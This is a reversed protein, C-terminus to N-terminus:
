ILGSPFVFTIVCLVCLVVFVCFLLFLIVFVVCCLVFYCVCCLLEPKEFVARYCLTLQVRIIKPKWFMGDGSNLASIRMVIQVQKLSWHEVWWWWVILIVLFFFSFFCPLAPVCVQIPYQHVGGGQQVHIPFAMIILLAHAHCQLGHPTAFCFPHQLPKDGQWIIEM